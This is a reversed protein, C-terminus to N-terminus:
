CPRAVAYGARKEIRFSDTVAGSSSVFRADLTTDTIDLVLSGFTAQTTYMAPHTSTWVVGNSQASTGVVAYVTGARSAFGAPKVYPGSGSPRGSGGNLKMCNTFTSSLGYHGDILYSREYDHSHGFLVLDTGYAELIPGANARMQTGEVRIDSNHHGFSYSPHHFIVIRWRLGPVSAAAALDSRLWTLM